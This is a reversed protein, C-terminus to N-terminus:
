KDKEAERKNLFDLREQLETRMVETAKRAVELAEEFTNYRCRKYFEDTRNSPMSEFESVGERNVCYRDSTRVAFKDPGDPQRQRTITIDERCSGGFKVVEWTLPLPEEYQTVELKFTTM